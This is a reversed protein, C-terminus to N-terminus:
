MKVVISPHQDKNYEKEIDTSIIMHNTEKEYIFILLYIEQISRSTWPYMRRLSSSAGAWAVPELEHKESSMQCAQTGFIMPVSALKM